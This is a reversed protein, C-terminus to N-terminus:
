LLTFSLNNATFSIVNVAEVFRFAAGAVERVPYIQGGGENFEDRASFKAKAKRLAGPL